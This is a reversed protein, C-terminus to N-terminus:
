KVEYGDLNLGGVESINEDGAIEGNFPIVVRKMIYSTDPSGSGLSLYAAGSFISGNSLHYIGQACLADDFVDRRREIRKKWYSVEVVPEGNFQSKIVSSIGDANLHRGKLIEAIKADNVKLARMLHLTGTYTDEGHEASYELISSYLGKVEPDHKNGPNLKEFNGKTDYKDIVNNLIKDREIISNVSAAVIGIGLMTMGTLVAYAGVDLLGLGENLASGYVAHYGEIIAMRLRDDRVDNVLFWFEM